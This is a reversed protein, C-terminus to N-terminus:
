GGQTCNEEMWTSVEEAAEEFETGFGEGIDELKEMAEPDLNAPDTFDIGAFAEAFEDWGDAMTRFADQIESPAADAVERFQDALAGYVDGADPDTFAASPDFAEDFETGAFEGLFGCDGSFEVDLADEVADEAADEADAAADGSPDDDDGCASLLLSLAAVFAVPLLWFSRNRMKNEEPRFTALVEDHASV